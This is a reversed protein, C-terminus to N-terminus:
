KSTNVVALNIIEGLSSPLPPMNITEPKLIDSQYEKGATFESVERSQM